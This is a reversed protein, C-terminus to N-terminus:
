AVSLGLDEEMALTERDNIGMPQILQQQLHGESNRFQKRQKTDCLQIM